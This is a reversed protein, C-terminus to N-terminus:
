KLFYEVKTLIKDLSERYKLHGSAIETVDFNEVGEIELPFNGIAKELRSLSYLRSLIKDTKSYTNILRGTVTKRCKQWTELDLPAAGGLLLVDHVKCGLDHLRQLCYYIVRTGLSFGILSICANGLMKSYILDALVYGTTEAKKARKKFPNVTFLMALHAVKLLPAAFLLGITHAVSSFLEKKVLKKPSGSDWRLALTHGQLENSIINIWSNEMEDDQSLWGSVVVTTTLSPVGKIKELVFEKIRKSPAVSKVIKSTVKLAGKWFSNKGPKNSYDELRDALNRNKMEYSHRVYETMNIVDDEVNWKPVINVIEQECLLVLSWESTKPKNESFFKVNIQFLEYVAVRVLQRYYPNYEEKNIIKNEIFFQYTNSFVLVLSIICFFRALQDSNKLFKEVSNDLFNKNRLFVEAKNDSPIQLLTIFSDLIHCPFSIEEPFYALIVESISERMPQSCITPDFAVLEKNKIKQLITNLFVKFNSELVEFEKDRGSVWEETIYNNLYNKYYNLWFNPFVQFESEVLLTLKNNAIEIIGMVDIYQEKTTKQLIQPLTETFHQLNTTLTNMIILDIQMYYQPKSTKCTEILQDEFNKLIKELIKYDKTSNIYIYFESRIQDITNKSIGSISLLFDSLTSISSSNQQITSLSLLIISNLHQQVSEKNLDLYTDITASKIRNLNKSSLPSPIKHKQLESQLHSEWDSQLQTSPIPYSLEDAWAAIGEVVKKITKKSISM